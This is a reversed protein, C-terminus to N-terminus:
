SLSINSDLIGLVHYVITNNYTFHSLIYDPIKREKDRNVVVDNYVIKSILFSKLEKDIDYNIYLYDGEILVNLNEYENLDIYFISKNHIINYMRIGISNEDLETLYKELEPDDTSYFMGEEDDFDEDFEDEGEVIDYLYELSKYDDESYIMNNVFKIKDRLSNITKFIQYEEEM